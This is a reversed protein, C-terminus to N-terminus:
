KGLGDGNTESQPENYRAELGFPNGAVPLNFSGDYRHLLSGASACGGIGIAFPRPLGHRRHDINERGFFGLLGRMREVIIRHQAAKKAIASQALRVFLLETEARAHHHTRFTVDQRIIM